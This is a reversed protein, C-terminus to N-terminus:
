PSLLLATPPNLRPSSPAPGTTIYAHQARVGDGVWEVGCCITPNGGVRRGPQGPGQSERPSSGEPWLGTASPSLQPWQPWPQPMQVSFPSEPGVIVRCLLWKPCLHGTRTGVPFLCTSSTFTNVAPSLANQTVLPCLGPCPLAQRLPSVSGRPRFEEEAEKDGCSVSHRSRGPM